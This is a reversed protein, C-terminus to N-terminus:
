RIEGGDATVIEWSPTMADRKIWFFQELFLGSEGSHDLM